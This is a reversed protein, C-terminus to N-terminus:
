DRAWKALNVWSPLSNIKQKV